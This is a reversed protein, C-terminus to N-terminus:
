RAGQLVGLGALKWTLAHVVKTNHTYVSMISAACVQYVRVRDVGLLQAAAQALRPSAVLAAVSPYKQEALWM